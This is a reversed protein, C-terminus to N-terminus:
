DVTVCGPSLVGQGWAGWAKVITSALSRTRVGAAWNRTPLASLKCPESLPVAPQDSVVRVWGMGAGVVLLPGVVPIAGFEREYIASSM